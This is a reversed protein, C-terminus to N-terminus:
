GQKRILANLWREQERGPRQDGTQWTKLIALASGKAILRALSSETLHTFERGSQVTEGEGYKFSVYLVGKIKLADALREFCDPLDQMRVHLLSACCWIGDYRNQESVEAFSRVPVVQQLHKSAIEALEACADFATVRYGMKKFALADRGSGCGADLIHGRNEVLPLFEAYLPSMDVSLTSEAYSQANEAYYRLTQSM